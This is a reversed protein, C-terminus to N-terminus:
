FSFGVSLHLRFRREAVGYAVDMQLPGVPSKWRVGTGIGVKTHLQRVEDAVAGADIFVTQEWQSYDNNIKIPRQWELSGVALYRGASVLGTAGTTGISNFAYGRVSADGGALFLQTDPLNADERALVAGAELRLALRGPKFADPSSDDGKALPYFGLWRGRARVFPQRDSGLTSGGGLEISLGHGSAPFPMSDFRRNTWAYNVSLASADPVGPETTNAREYQLYYARDYKDDSQSRGWRLRQSLLKFSGATERQALASTVWRWNDDDLPARLETGLSQTARDLSLKSLASWGLWPLQRHTHEVSVRPGSDTSAGVGLVIKQRRAERLQVLVPASKPDGETDLTVFAADFYGSDSLRQQAQLMETQDYDAGPQLRAIRAVATPSYNQLGTIQLAGLRYVPGSDLTVTLVATRALPDVEARSLLVQGKPFHKITLLRLAETKSEDWAAQTFVMGTRLRWGNRIARRQPELAADSSIPGSFNIVVESIRTPEGPRIVGTVLRLAGPNNPTDRQSFTVEPSFYGLTGLLERTDHEAVTLLRALENSDLDTVASYRQLDLHRELYPRVNDPAQIELKFADPAASAGPAAIQARAPALGLALACVVLAGLLHALRSGSRWTM